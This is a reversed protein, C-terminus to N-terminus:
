ANSVSREVCPAPFGRGQGLGWSAGPRAQVIGLCVWSLWLVGVQVAKPVDQVMKCGLIRFNVVKERKENNELRFRKFFFGPFVDRARLLHYIKLTLRWSPELIAGPRALAVGLCGWFSRLVSVQVAKFVDQDM